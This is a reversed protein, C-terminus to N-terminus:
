RWRDLRQSVVLLKGAGWLAVILATSALLQEV